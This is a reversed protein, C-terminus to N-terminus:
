RLVLRSEYIKQSSPRIIHQPCDVFAHLFALQLNHVLVELLGRTCAFPFRYEIVLLNFYGDIFINLIGYKILFVACLIGGVKGDETIQSHFIWKPHESERWFLIYESQNTGFFHYFLQHDLNINKKTGADLGEREKNPFFM